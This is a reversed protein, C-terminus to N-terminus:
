PLNENTNQTHTTEYAILQDRLLLAHVTLLATLQIGERVAQRKQWTSNARFKSERFKSQPYVSM